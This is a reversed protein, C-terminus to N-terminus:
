EAYRKYVAQVATVSTTVENGDADKHTVEYTVQDHFSLGDLTNGQGDTAGAARKEALDTAILEAVKLAGHYSLHLTDEEVGTQTNYIHYNQAVYSRGVVSYWEGTLAGTDVLFVNKDAALKRIADMFPALGSGEPRGFEGLETGNADKWFKCSQMATALIVVIGKEQCQDIMYTLYQVMEDISSYTRDNIGAQLIFYDGPQGNQIVGPFAMEYWSKAYTGGGAINTVANEETVYQAFVQGWGTQYRGAPPESEEIPYYNSVTSDGGLYIHVRRETIEPTRRIEVAALTFDKESLSLRMTGGEVCVDEMLYVYPIVGKRGGSGPNGVNTGQSAENIRVTSRGTGSKPKIIRIDYFGDPLEAVFMGSEDCLNVGGNTGIVMGYFGCLEQGTYKDSSEVHVYGEAGDYECKGLSFKLVPSVEVAAAKDLTLKVNGSGDAKKDEKVVSGDEGRVTVQYVTDPTYNVLGTVDVSLEALGKVETNIYAYGSKDVEKPQTFDVDKLIKIEAEALQKLVAEDPQYDELNHAIFRKEVTVGDVTACVAAFVPEKSQILCWLQGDDVSLSETSFEWRVKSWDPAEMPEGYQDVCNILAIDERQGRKMNDPMSIEFSVVRQAERVHLTVTLAAEADGEPVARLVIDTGNIDGAIYADTITVVGDGGVSVGDGSSIIEWTVESVTQTKEGEGRTVSFPETQATEGAHPAYIYEQGGVIRMTKEEKGCATLMVAAFILMGQRLRTFAMSHEMVAEGKTKKMTYVM